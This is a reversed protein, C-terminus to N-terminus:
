RHRGREQGAQRFRPADEASKIQWGIRLSIYGAFKMAFKSSADAIRQRDRRQIASHGFRGPGSSEFIGTEHRHCLLLSEFQLNGQAHKGKQKWNMGLCHFDPAVSQDDGLASAAAEQKGLYGDFMTPVPLSKQLLGAAFSIQGQIGPAFGCGDLGECGLDKGIEISCYWASGIRFDQEVTAADGM